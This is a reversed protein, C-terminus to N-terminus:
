LALIRAQLNHCDAWKIHGQWSRLFKNREEGVLRKAKRKARTVSDRRILKYTKWIRYGLFNIGRSVNQISWKSLTLGLIEYSYAELKIKLQRLYEIDSHLVVIDDMYRAWHKVKLDQQLYHDLQSAFINAFLQSTLWGVPLGKGGVPYMLRLISLVFKCSIKKEIITFLLDYSISPFFKSFDTKLVFKEDPYKRLCAQIYKVGAHTGRNKRCAYSNSVFTSEFIPEIVNCIAHQVLRDRFSLAKIHRHKPVYIDFEKFEDLKYTENLLEEQIKELNILDFERFQLYSRTSRKGKATKKYALLLNEWSCIQEKLNKYKKGM